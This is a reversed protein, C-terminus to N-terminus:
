DIVAQIREWIPQPSIGEGTFLVDGAELNYGSAVKSLAVPRQGQRLTDFKTLVIVLPIGESACIMQIALEDEGPDRRCDNLLVVARLWRRESLFTVSLGSIAEREAKSLRAFGFGPMDVLCLQSPEGRWKGDVAYFNLERTSGPRGSVRALKRGVLRNIFTSKGVNSRGIIAVEPLNQKRIAAMSPAGFLFDAGRIIMESASM